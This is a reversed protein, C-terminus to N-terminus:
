PLAPSGFHSQEVLSVLHQMLEEDMRAALDPHQELYIEAMVRASLVDDAPLADLVPLDNDEQQM